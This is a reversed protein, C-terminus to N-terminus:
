VPMLSEKVWEPIPDAKSFGFSAWAKPPEALQLLRGFIYIRKFMAGYNRALAVRSEKPGTLTKCRTFIRDAVANYQEVVWKEQSLPALLLVRDGQLAQAITLVVVATFREADLSADDYGRTTPFGDYLTKQSVSPETGFLTSHNKQLREPSIDM